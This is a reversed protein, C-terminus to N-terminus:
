QGCVNHAFRNAPHKRPAGAGKWPGVTSGGGASLVADAKLANLHELAELTVDVPTHMAAKSFIGAARGGLKSALEFGLDSQHPTSLVLVRQAGVSEAQAAVDNRLGAGFAVKQTTAFQTVDLM